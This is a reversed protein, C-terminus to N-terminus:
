VSFLIKGPSFKFNLLLKTHTNNVSLRLNSVKKYRVRVKLIQLSPLITQSGVKMLNRKKDHIYAPAPSSRTKSHKSKIKARMVNM